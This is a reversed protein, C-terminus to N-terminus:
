MDFATSGTGGLGSLSSDLDSALLDLDEMTWLGGGHPEM